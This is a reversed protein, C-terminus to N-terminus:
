VGLTATPACVTIGVGLPITLGGEAPAAGVASDIGEVCDPSQMQFHM